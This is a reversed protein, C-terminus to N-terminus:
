AVRQFVCFVGCHIAGHPQEQRWHRSQKWQEGSVEATTNPDSRGSLDPLVRSASKIPGEPVADFRRCRRLM